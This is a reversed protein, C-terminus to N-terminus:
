QEALLFIFSGDNQMYFWVSAFTIQIGESSIVALNNVKMFRTSVSFNSMPYAPCEPPSEPLQYTITGDGLIVINYDGGIDIITENTETDTDAETITDNDAYAINCIVFIAVIFYLLWCTLTLYWKM